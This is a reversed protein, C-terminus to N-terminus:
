LAGNRTVRIPSAVLRIWGLALAGIMAVCGMLIFWSPGALMARLVLGTARLLTDLIDIVQVLGGVLAHAISPTAFTNLVVSALPVIVLVILGILSLFFLGGGRLITLWTNHRRIGAM